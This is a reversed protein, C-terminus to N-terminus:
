KAFVEEFFRVMRDWSRNDVEQNYSMGGAKDNAAPNTFAHGTDGYAVLEWNARKSKLEQALAVAQEPTALPDDWGHLVLVKSKIEVDENYGPPDLVGHFSVVGAIEEGSRALDLVSKGGFCFGIAGIRNQDVMPFSRAVKLCLQMRELLLPRDDNLTDMLATAEENTEGRKGKGYTDIAFGIYGMEALRVARQVEFETQGRFTPAVLVIPRDNMSSDDYTVVGEYGNTGDSYEFTRKHVM